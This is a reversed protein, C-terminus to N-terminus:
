SGAWSGFAAFDSPSGHPRPVDVVFDDVDFASDYSDGCVSPRDLSPLRLKEYSGESFSAGVESLVYELGDNWDEGGM